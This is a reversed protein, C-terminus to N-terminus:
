HGAEGSRWSAGGQGEDRGRKPDEEIGNQRQRRALWTGGLIHTWCALMEQSHSHSHGITPAAVETGHSLTRLM